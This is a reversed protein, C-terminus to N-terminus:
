RRGRQTKAETNVLEEEKALALSVACAKYEPIKATADLADITLLNAATLSRLDTSAASRRVAHAALQHEDCALLLDFLEARLQVPIVHQQGNCIRGVVKPHFQYFLRGIQGLPHQDPDARATSLVTRFIFRRAADAFAFLFFGRAPRSRSAPHM